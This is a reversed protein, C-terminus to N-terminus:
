SSWPWYFRYALGNATAAVLRDREDPPKAADTPARIAIIIHTAIELVTLGVAGVILVVVTFFSRVGELGRQSFPLHTVVISFYLVAAILVLPFSTSASKEQFSM